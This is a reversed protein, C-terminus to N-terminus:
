IPMPETSDETGSETLTIFSRYSELSAYVQSIWRDHLEVNGAAIAEGANKVAQGVDALRRKRDRQIRRAKAEARKAEREEPTLEPKPEPTNKAAM